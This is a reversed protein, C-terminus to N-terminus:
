RIVYTGVRCVDVVDRTSRGNSFEILLDYSCNSVNRITLDFSRGNELVRNGLLDNEWSDNHTPSSYLYMVTLGSSNQFRITETQAMAPAAVLTAVAAAAMMANRFM